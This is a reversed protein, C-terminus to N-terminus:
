CHREIHRIMKDVSAEIIKDGAFKMVLINAVAGTHMTYDIAVRSGSGDGSVSIKIEDSESSYKSNESRIIVTRATEDVTATCKNDAEPSTHEVWELDSIVTTRVNGHVALQSPRKVADWVRDASKGIEKVVIKEQEVKDAKGSDAGALAHRHSYM